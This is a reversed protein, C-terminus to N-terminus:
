ADRREDVLTGNSLAVMREPITAVVESTSKEHPHDFCPFWHRNDEDQGQSWCQLPRNPYAEDPHIFYLGRRPECRYRIIVDFSEGQRREGLDFSLAKGDYEFEVSEGDGLNVALISMEVANLVVRTSGDNLAALTQTCVGDVARREFDLAVEVKIHKVDCVRDPAWTAQAGPLVFPLADGGTLSECRRCVLHREERRM